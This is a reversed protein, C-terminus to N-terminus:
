YFTQIVNNDVKVKTTCVVDTLKISCHLSLSYTVINVQLLYVALFGVLFLFIGHALYHFIQFMENCRIPKGPCTLTGPLLWSRFLLQDSFCLCSCIVRTSIMYTNCICAKFSYYLFVHDLDMFCVLQSQNNFGTPFYLHWFSTVDFLVRM